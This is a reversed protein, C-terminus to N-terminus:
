KFNFPDYKKDIIELYVLFASIALLGVVVLFFIDHSILAVALFAVLMCIFIGFLAYLIYTKM